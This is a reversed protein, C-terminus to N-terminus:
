YVIIMVDYITHTWAAMGFGRWLYIANLALGFLFRFLFSSFTFPDGFAGVYHVLSFIVAALLIASAFAVSQKAFVKKFIFLLASVLIVRFFLEEYLGAGLSLALQQLTTLSEIPSTQLMQLLGSVTTNIILALFFAYFSAEILMTFFYSLKLSSLKERERYLVVIGLLAVLILTISLVDRGIYSFLTKIWVDVSIRVVQESDPQAWFILVEYLLLLPLSILYSYLLTHTSSFYNKISERINSM